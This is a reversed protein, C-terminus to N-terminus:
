GFVFSGVGIWDRLEDSSFRGDRRFLQLIREVLRSKIVVFLRFNLSLDM